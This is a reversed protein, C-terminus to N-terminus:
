EWTGDGPCGGRGPPACAFVVTGDARKNITFQDGSKSYMTISYHDPGAGGLGLGQPLSPEISRLTAATAGSYSGGHETAYTEIAIQASHVREM